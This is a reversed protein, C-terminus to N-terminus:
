DDSNPYWLIDEKEYCVCCCFKNIVLFDKLLDTSKNQMGLSMSDLILFSFRTRTLPFISGYAVLRMANMQIDGM